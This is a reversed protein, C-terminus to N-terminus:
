RTTLEVESSFLSALPWGGEISIILIRPGTMFKTSRGQFTHINRALSKQREERKFMSTDLQREKRARHSSETVPIIHLKCGTDKGPNSVADEIARKAMEAIAVFSAFPFAIGEPYTTM